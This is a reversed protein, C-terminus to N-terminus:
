FSIYKKEKISNKIEKLDLFFKNENIKILEKKVDKVKIIDILKEEFDFNKPSSIILYLTTSSNNM